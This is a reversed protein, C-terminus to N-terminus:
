NIVSLLNSAFKSNGKKNLHLGKMGLLREDINDNNLFNINQQKCFNKLRENIESVIESGKDIDIRKIISSFTIKIEPSCEQIKKVMAKVNHIYNINKTIDNTGAHIVIEDPKKRLTPNMHDLMDESSAGPYKRVKVAHIRSLGKEELGNLMSDGIIEIRKKKVHQKNSTSNRHGNENTDKVNNYQQNNHIGKNAHEKQDKQQQMQKNNEKLNEKVHIQPTKHLENKNVTLPNLSYKEKFKNRVEELQSQLINKNNDEKRGTSKAKKEKRVTVNGNVEKQTNVDIAKTIHDQQVNDKTAQKNSNDRNVKSRLGDRILECLISNVEEKRGVEEKLHENKSNLIKIHEKLASLEHMVYRKFDVYDDSITDNM